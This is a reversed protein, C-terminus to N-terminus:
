SLDSFAHRPPHPLDWPHALSRTTPLAHETRPQSPQDALHQGPYALRCSDPRPAPTCSQCTPDPQWTALSPEDPQASMRRIHCTPGPSAHTPDPHRPNAHRCTEAKPQATPKSLRSAALYTPVAQDPVSLSLRTPNAAARSSRPMDSLRPLLPRAHRSMLRRGPITPYPDTLRVLDHASETLSPKDAHQPFGHGPMDGHSPLRLSPKDAPSASTPRPISQRCAFSPRPKDALDPLSPPPTSQRRSASASSFLSAYDCPSAARAADCVNM